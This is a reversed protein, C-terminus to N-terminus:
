NSLPDYIKDQVEAVRRTNFNNNNGLNNREGEPTNAPPYQFMESDGETMIPIGKQKGEVKFQTLENPEDTIKINIIRKLLKGYTDEGVTEIETSLKKMLSNKIGIRKDADVDIKVYDDTIDLGIEEKEELNFNLLYDVVDTIDYIDDDTPNTNNAYSILVNLNTKLPEM